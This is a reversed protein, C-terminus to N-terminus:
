PTSRDLPYPPLAQAPEFHLSVIRGLWPVWGPDADLGQRRVNLDVQDLGFVVDLHTHSLQMWAPRQLLEVASRWGKHRMARHLSGWAQQGLSRVSAPQDLWCALLVQAHVQVPLDAVREFAPLASFMPDRVWQQRAHPGLRAWLYLWPASAAVRADGGEQVRVRESLAQVFGLGQLARLTFPLGGLQTFRLQTWGLARFTPSSAEPAGALSPLSPTAQHTPLPTQVGGAMLQAQDTSARPRDGHVLGQPQAQAEPGAKSSPDTQPSALSASRAKGDLGEPVSSPAPTPVADPWGQPDHALGLHAAPEHGAPAEPSWAQAMEQVGRLREPGQPLPEHGALGPEPSARYAELPHTADGVQMPHASGMPVDIVPADPAGTLVSIVGPRQAIWVKCARQSIPDAQWREWMARAQEVRASPAGLGPSAGGSASGAPAAPLGAMRAIRPWYWAHTNLALSGVGLAVDLWAGVADDWSDFWVADARDAGASRGHCARSVVDQAAAQVVEAWGPASASGTRVQLKRILVLRQGDGLRACRLADELRQQWGLASPESAGQALAGVRVRALGVQVLHRPDVLSPWTQTLM